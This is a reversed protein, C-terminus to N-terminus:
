TLRWAHYRGIRDERRVHSITGALIAAAQISVPLQTMAFYGYRVLSLDTMKAMHAVLIIIQAACVWLPWGRNARLAIWLLAMFAWTDIVLHGPNLAFFAPNGFMAHNVADLMATSILVAAVLREPEEGKRLALLMIVAVILRFTWILVM